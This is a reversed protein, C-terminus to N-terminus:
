VGQRLGKRCREQKGKSEEGKDDGEGNNKQNTQFMQALEDHEVTSEGHLLKLFQVRQHKVSGHARWGRLRHVDLEVSVAAVIGCPDDDDRIGRSGPCDQSPVNVEFIRRRAQAWDEAGDPQIWQLLATIPSFKKECVNRESKLLHDVEM